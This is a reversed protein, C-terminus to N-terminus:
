RPCLREGFAPRLIEVACGPTHYAEMTVSPMAM